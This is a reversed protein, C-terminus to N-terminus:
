SLSNACTLGNVVLADTTITFARLSSPPLSIVHFLSDQPDLLLETLQVVEIRRQHMARSSRQQLDRYQTKLNEWLTYTNEQVIAAQERVRM